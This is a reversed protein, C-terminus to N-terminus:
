SLPRPDSTEDAPVAFGDGITLPESTEDSALALLFDVFGAASASASAPVTGTVAGGGAVPPDDNNSGCAAFLLTSALGAGLALKRTNNM